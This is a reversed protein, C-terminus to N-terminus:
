RAAARRVGWQSIAPGRHVKPTAQEIRRTRPMSWADVAPRSKAIAWCKSRHVRILKSIEFKPRRKSEIDPVAALVAHHYSYM